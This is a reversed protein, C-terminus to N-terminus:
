NWQPLKSPPRIKSHGPLQVPVSTASVWFNDDFAFEDLHCSPWCGIPRLGRGIPHQGIGVRCSPLFQACPGIMHHGLCRESQGLVPNQASLAYFVSIPRSPNSQESGARAGFTHILSRPQLGIFRAKASVGVQDTPRFGRTLQWIDEVAPVLGEAGLGCRWPEEKKGQRGHGARLTM